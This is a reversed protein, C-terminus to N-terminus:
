RPECRIRLGAIATIQSPSHQITGLIPPFAPIRFHCVFKVRSCGSAAFVSNTITRSFSFIEASSTHVMKLAIIFVAESFTMFAIIDSSSSNVLSYISIKCRAPYQFFAFAKKKKSFFSLKHM